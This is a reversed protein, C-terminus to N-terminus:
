NNLLQVAEFLMDEAESLGKGFRYQLLGQGVETTISLAADLIQDHVIRYSRGLGDKELLRV